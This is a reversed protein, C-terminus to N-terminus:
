DRFNIISHNNCFILIHKEDGIEGSPCLSCTRELRNIQKRRLAEIPLNHTSIRINTINRRMTNKTLTLYEEFKYTRKIEAYIEYRGSSGLRKQRDELLNFFYDEYMTKFKSQLQIKHTAIENTPSMNLLHPMDIAAFLSNLRSIYNIEKQCALLNVKIASFLLSGEPAHLIHQWYKYINCLIKLTLPYRGLEAKVMVETARKHVGLTHRCVKAHLMEFKHKAMLLHKLICPTTNKSWGYIAWIESNYIAIPQIMSDFLKLIVKPPTNNNYNFERRITYYAKSAKLALNEIAPKFNGTNTIIIGLYCFKTVTEITQNDIKFNYAVHKPKNTILMKTKPISITLRWKNCYDTLNNLCHQMGKESRSLLVLDDAYMLCNLPENNLCVAECKPDNLSSPLDNIFINFLTPSLNCGQRTGIDVPFKETLGQKIRLCATVNSYMSTIINIFKTSIGIQQLKYILGTHFVTDYAKKFDVFCMYLGKKRKRFTDIITKLVLIHDSTRKHPVFGIQNKSILNNETLYSILRNNLIKTFLKGLCNSITICRYNAPDERDGSKFLPIVYGEGWAKPFQESELIHNFLKQICPGLHTISHKIMENSISDFGCAKNNKLQKATDNLEKLTVM